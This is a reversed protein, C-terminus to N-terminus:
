VEKTWNISMLNKLHPSIISGILFAAIYKFGELVTDIQGLWVLGLGIIIAIIPIGYIVTVVLWTIAGSIRKRNQYNDKKQNDELQKDLTVEEGLTNPNIDSLLPPRVEQIEPM